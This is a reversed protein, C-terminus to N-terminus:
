KNSNDFLLIRAKIKIYTYSITVVTNNFIRELNSATPTISITNGVTCHINHVVVVVM